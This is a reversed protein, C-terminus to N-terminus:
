NKVGNNVSNQQQLIYEFQKKSINEFYSWTNETRIIKPIVRNIDIGERRVKDPDDNRTQSEFHYAVGDSIFINEKGKSLCDINYEVDEFCEIYEENFGGIQNFTEKPTLMFAATNGLVNRNNLHYSYYSGLGKHSLGITGQPTIFMIVGSHQITDDDFHLRCGITGINNKKLYMSVMQTLANNLLKIDNNSFLLLETDISVHNRVVDNNIKAFNYYDYEILKWEKDTIWDAKTLEDNIRELDEDESGTDAILLEINPYGDIVMISKICDLLMDVKGKTPIIVSVKPTRTLKVEKHEYRIKPALKVPLSEKYREVFQKRNNEWEDNTKGISKHTIKVDFIVGIKVGSLYNNFCFDIDYFHFGKVNENFDEKIVNKNVAFFLGDVVVTEIIEKTFNSSYKNEWTKGNNSHKVVGVMKNNESWWQGSENMSTTGAIGLIGYESNKFHNLLKRGWSNSNFLIDDHCFVVIDNTAQKLGRNYAITLSEGKNVIEIIEIKNALGSTKKIHESHKPNSERTCYVVSIM